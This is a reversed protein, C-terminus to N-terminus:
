ALKSTDSASICFSLAYDIGSGALVEEVLQRCRIHLGNGRSPASCDRDAPMVITDVARQMTLSFSCNTGAPKGISNWSLPVVVGLDDICVHYEVEVNAAEIQHRRPMGPSYREVQEQHAEAGIEILPNAFFILL